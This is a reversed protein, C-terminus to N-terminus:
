LINGDHNGIIGLAQGPQQRILNLAYQYTKKGYPGRRMLDGIFWLRTKPDLVELMRSIRNFSVDNNKLLTAWHRKMGEIDSVAVYREAPGSAYAFTALSLSM